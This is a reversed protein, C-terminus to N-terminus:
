YRLIYEMNWKIIEEELKKIGERRLENLEKISVFINDDCIINVNECRFHTDGLKLLQKQIKLSDMPANIAESVISGEAQVSIDNYKLEIRLPRSLEVYANISIPLTPKINIYKDEIFKIIEDDAGVYGPKTLTIMDKGNHKHYYGEQREARIYLKSLFRLDEESVGTSEGNYFKDIYKRYISTVGAAYEPKKMRGEIKFSDVGNKIMEDIISITCMDKMSLPYVKSENPRAYELRCPQACRGRNGSRGGLISSFLCMGSYSYCMAGHIFAEIQIGTAEKIHKIEGLSLERAPVIRSVGYSQLLSTAYEGTISMQTSAHIPLTPFNSRIIRIVGVDQVIVGDLGEEYLPKLFPILDEKEKEKVLTNVTLYVRKQFLHAVKIVDILEDDKFNDAYARAGFRTGALYFADAGANLAGIFAKYSGAPALLEVKEM